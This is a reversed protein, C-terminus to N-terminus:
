DDDAEAEIEVEPGMAPPEYKALRRQLEVARAREAARRHVKLHGLLAM